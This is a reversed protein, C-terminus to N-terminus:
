LSGPHKGWEFRREPDFDPNIEPMAAEVSFRWVELKKKLDQAKEPMEKALNNHEGIDETLNYLELKGDEFFELLKWEGSRIAGAPTSHHYHPYHWYLNLRKLQGNQKLLPIISEGDLPYAPDKETNTIELFTPYFDVSSVPTRCVSGPEVFGPWRVILPERIGGEYLTGKEARLPFNSTVIDGEGDYRQHLGGNDSFFFVVTNSGLNLDDLKQIIRGVSQDVHEVMAAYVPHNIGGEPKPKERYKNILKEKAELPIHVAFHSLYLCFPKNKNEEIFKEAQDTLVESLYSGEEVEIPPITKVTPFFHGWGASVLSSDFGQKEPFFDEGGLHWKGFAASQYGAKKLSEAFTVKELPLYQTKNIPVRLKEFPRWHGQIFDTLGIRAPYQGSLISARTPSCVPCAAYADTFRMGQSALKDIHSTENFKNGYCGVDAWGLDDALIFVINPKQNSKICSNFWHSMSWGTSMLGLIKLFHRRSIKEL